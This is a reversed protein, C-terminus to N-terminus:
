MMGQQPQGQPMPAQGLGQPQQQAMAEDALGAAANVLEAPMGALQEQSVQGQVM